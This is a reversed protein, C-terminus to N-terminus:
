PEEVVRFDLDPFIESLCSCAAEVTAKAAAEDPEQGAMAGHLNFLLGRLRLESTVLARIIQAERTTLKTRDYAIRLKM